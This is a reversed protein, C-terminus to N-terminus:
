DLDILVEATFNLRQSPQNFRTFCQQLELWSSLHSFLLCLTALQLLDVMLHLVFQINCLLLVQCDHVYCYVNVHVVSVLLLWLLISAMYSSIKALKVM